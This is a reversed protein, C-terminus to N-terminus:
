VIELVLGLLENGTEIVQALISSRLSELASSGFKEYRQNGVYVPRCSIDESSGNVRQLVPQADENKLAVVIESHM